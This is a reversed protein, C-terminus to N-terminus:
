FGTVMLILLIFVDCKVMFNEFWWVSVELYINMVPENLVLVFIFENEFDWPDHDM